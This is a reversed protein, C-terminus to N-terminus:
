IESSFVFQAAVAAPDIRSDNWVITVTCFAETDCSIQAGSDPLLALYTNYWDALDDDALPPNGDGIPAADGLAINYNGAIAANRNARLRDMVDYAILVAQSRLHSSSGGRLATVQLAAFGLIGVALILLAVLVEVLTFGKQRRRPPKKAESNLSRERVPNTRLTQM